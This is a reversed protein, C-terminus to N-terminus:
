RRFNRDVVLDPHERRFNMAIHCNWCIPRHTAMLKALEEPRVEDWEVSKGDPGVLAPKHEMWDARHLLKGCYACKRDEYWHTFINKLLCDNPATEIQRLCEQGCGEKEPWRSCDRITIHGTLKVAVPERNEPCTILRTGRYKWWGLPNLM